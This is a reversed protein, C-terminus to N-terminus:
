KGKAPGQLALYSVSISGSGGKSSPKINQKSEINLAKKGFEYFFGLAMLGIFMEIILFAYIEGQSSSLPFPYILTIELDFILFILAFIFFSVTVQKRNQFLFSHFGCEFTSIKEDYPKHPALLINLVLFLAAIILVFIIFITLSSM